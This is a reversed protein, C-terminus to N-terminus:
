IKKETYFNFVKSWGSQESGVKYFYQQGSELNSLIVEHIWGLWGGNTYTKVTGTSKLNLNGAQKGYMVISDVKDQTVWNVAMKTSEKGLALHVQEPAKSVCCQIQCYEYMSCLAFPTFEEAAALKPLTALFRAVNAAIGYCRGRLSAPLLNCVADFVMEM